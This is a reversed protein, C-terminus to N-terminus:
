FAKQSDDRQRDIDQSKGHSPLQMRGYCLAHRVQAARINLAAVFDTEVIVQDSVGGGGSGTLLNCSGRSSAFYLM